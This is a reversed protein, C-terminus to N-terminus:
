MASLRAAATGANGPAGPNGDTGTALLGPSFPGGPGPAGGAGPAGVQINANTSMDSTVTSSGSLIGVSIGGAGGAGGSGGAGNGGNAGMAHADQTSSDDGGRGGRQGDQGAGGAGGNGASSATLVCLSLGMTSGVAALAISGGGGGGGQGGAGGCGGAGGGGGGISPAIGCFGQMPDTAGAGGQGPTGPAGAGGASPTWGNASLTGYASPPAAVGGDQAVGDAGSQNFNLTMVGGDDPVTLDAPLGGRGSITVPAPPSATGPTGWGTACGLGGNGGASSGFLLCPNVGGEGGSVPTVSGNTVTWVQPQGAAAPGMYNPNMSGDDGAAGNAGAGASLTVRTLNVSSSVVLAATSSGSPRSADPASFSMDEITVTGSSVGSVSLAFAASPSSVQAVSGAAYGWMRGTSTVECSLGGYLAVASTIAVQETYLGSCVYVRTMTGLNALAQGITAYPQAMSGDGIATSADDDGADGADSELPAAVFVGYANDLVCPQERPGQTLDCAVEERAGADGAGPVLPGADKSSCLDLEGCTDPLRSCSIALGTSSIAALAASVVALRATARLGNPSPSASRRTGSGDGWRHVIV